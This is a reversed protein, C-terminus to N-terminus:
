AHIRRNISALWLLTIYSLVRFMYFPSHLIKISSVGSQRLRMQIPIEVVSMGKSKMHAIAIPEPYDSPYDNSFIELGSKGVLRMGSTSDTIHGSPFLINIWTNIFQNGIKRIRTTSQSKLKLNRSGVVMECNFNEFTRILDAIYVPPHQGDGDIQIAGQYGNCLAWIFGAQVAGGIGLNSVFNLTECEMDQLIKSTRDTSGDNIAIISIERNTKRIETITQFISDEENYCPVIVCYKNKM